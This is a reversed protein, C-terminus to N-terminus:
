ARPGDLGRQRVSPLVLRHQGRQAAIVQAHGAEVMQVYGPPKAPSGNLSSLRSYTNM